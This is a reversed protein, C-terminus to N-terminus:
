AKLRELMSAIRRTRTEPKKAEGVWRLYENRHSLPLASFVKGAVADGDLAFQIDKAINGAM